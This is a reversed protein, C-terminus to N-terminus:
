LNERMSKRGKYPQRTNIERERSENRSVNKMTNNRNVKKTQHKNKKKRQSKNVKKITIVNKRNNREM